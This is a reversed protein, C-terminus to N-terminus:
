LLWSRGWRTTQAELFARKMQVRGYIFSNHLNWAIWAFLCLLIQRCFLSLSLRFQACTSLFGCGAVPHQCVCVFLHIAKKIIIIISFSGMCLLSCGKLDTVQLFSTNPVIIFHRFLTKKKKKTIRTKTKLDGVTPHLYKWKHSRNWVPKQWHQLCIVNCFILSHM